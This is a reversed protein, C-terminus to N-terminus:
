HATEAAQAKAWAVTGKVSELVTGHAPAWGLQERTMKSSAPNDATIAFLFWNFHEQAETDPISKVPVGLEEGVKTVIDKVAVGEQAVAHFISGPIAKEMALRYLIAADLVHGASWRNQGDGVYAAVGKQLVNQVLMGTFGSSGNGHTTPPLRIVSTRVGKKAFDLCVPESAARTLAIANSADAVYDEHGLQGQKLMMTGSTVVLARPKGAAVADALVEGLATIAARDKACCEEFKTFDHVFALHLVADCDAAGRRLIDLEEITGRLSEAGLNKLQEAGKDSRTLGLVTHGNALLEKVVATGVFGTSGTVFARM